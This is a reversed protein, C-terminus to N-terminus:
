RPRVSGRSCCSRWFDPWLQRLLNIKLNLKRTCLHRWVKGSPDHSAPTYIADLGVQQRIGLQQDALQCGVGDEVSLTVDSQACLEVLLTQEDPDDVLPALELAVQAARAKLLDGAPPQADDFVEGSAPADVLAWGVDPKLQRTTSRSRAIRAVWRGASYALARSM